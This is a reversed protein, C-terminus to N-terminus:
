SRNWEFLFRCPWRRALRYNHLGAKDALQAVEELTFAARVSQPADAHTEASRTLLFSGGYALALGRRNRLLDNICVTHQAAEAMNGLFRLAAADSLHHFFLSCMILDYGSPLPEEIADCRFFESSAGASAAKRSAYEVALPKVDCGDIQLAVGYRRARNWLAIPVDGGGTAIDLVRVPKPSVRRALCKISPWLIGASRSWWNIRELAALEEVFISPALAPDDIIEPMLLRHKLSLNAPRQYSDPQSKLHQVEEVILKIVSM